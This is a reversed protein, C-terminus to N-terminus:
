DALIARISSIHPRDVSNYMTCKKSLESVQKDDIKRTMLGAIRGFSYIDSAESQKCLGDRLDPAIQPHNIKYQKREEFTLRYSRGKFIECAKGFDIIVPKVTNNLTTTLIVNDSKLDNHLVKYRSHLEEICAVIQQLIDKWDVEYPNLLARSKGFAQHLTVSSDGLGHFTTVIAHRSQCVGFLYPICSSSFKSLINAETCLAIPDKHKLFKVCVQYHSFTHILCTGFRGSGIEKPSSLLDSEMILKISPLLSVTGNKDCKSRGSSALTASLGLQHIRFSRSNPDKLIVNELESDRLM